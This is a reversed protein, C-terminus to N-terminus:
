PDIWPSAHEGLEVVVEFHDAHDDREVLFATRRTPGRSARRAQSCRVAEM